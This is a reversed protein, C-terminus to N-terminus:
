PNNGSTERDTTTTTTTTTESGTVVASTEAPRSTFSGIVLALLLTLVGTAIQYFWFRSRFALDEKQQASSAKYDHELKALKKDAEDQRTQQKALTKQLKIVESQTNKLVFNLSVMQSELQKIVALAQSRGTESVPPAEPSPKGVSESM